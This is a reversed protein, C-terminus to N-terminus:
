KKKKLDLQLQNKERIACTQKDALIGTAAGLIRDPSVVVVQWETEFKCEKGTGEMKAVFTGTGKYTNIEEQNRLTVEYSLFKPNSGPVMRVQLNAGNLHLEYQSGSDALWMGNPDNKPVKQAFLLALALALLKM